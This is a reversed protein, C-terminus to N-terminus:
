SQTKKSKFGKLYFAAAGAAAIGIGILIYTEYNTQRDSTSAGENGVLTLFL